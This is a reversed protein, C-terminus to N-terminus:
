NKNKSVRMIGISISDCVGVCVVVRVLVIWSFLLKWINKKRNQEKQQHNKQARHTSKKKLNIESNQLFVAVADPQDNIDSYKIGSTLCDAAVVPYHIKM